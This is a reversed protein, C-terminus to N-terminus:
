TTKLAAILTANQNLQSLELKADAYKQSLESQWHSNLTDVIRQNGANITNNLENTQQQQAYAVASFGQTVGNALQDIRSTLAATNQQDRLQGEYGMQMTQMKNECCCTQMAQTMDKANILGSTTGNNVANATNAFGLNMAASLDHLIDHNGNVAGTIANTNQNDAIQSTIDNLKNMMEVGQAGNGNGGFGGNNMYALFLLYFFPNNWMGGGNGNNMIAAMDAASMGNM